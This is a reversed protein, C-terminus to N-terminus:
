SIMTIAMIIIISAADFIFKSIPGYLNGILGNAAVVSQYNLAHVRKHGNYVVRIKVLGVFQDSLTVSSDGITTLSKVDIICQEPM